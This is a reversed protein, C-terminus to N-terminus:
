ASIPSTRTQALRPDGGEAIVAVTAAIVRSRVGDDGHDRNSRGIGQMIGESSGEM